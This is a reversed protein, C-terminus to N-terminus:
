EKLQERIDALGAKEMDQKEQKDLARLAALQADLVGLLMENNEATLKTYASALAIYVKGKEAKSLTAIYESLQKAAADTDKEALEIFQQIDLDAM